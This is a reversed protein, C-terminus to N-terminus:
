PRMGTKTHAGWAPRTFIRNLAPMFAELPMTDYDPDFAKQDWQDTFLATREFAPHGRYAERANPNGGFYRAYYYGQFEEHHKVLWTNEPSLYPAVMTAAFPGHNNPALADGIDHILACVVTEEDAGARFARTATQLCHVYRDVPYGLDLTRLLKLASVIHGVVEHQFRDFKEGIPKWDAATAEDFSRFM